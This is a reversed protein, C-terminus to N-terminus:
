AAGGKRPQIVQGTQLRNRLTLCEEWELQRRSAEWLLSAYSENETRGPYMLAADHLEGVTVIMWRHALLEVWHPPITNLAGLLTSAPLRSM